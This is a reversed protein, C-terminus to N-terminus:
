RRRLAVLGALALLALSAPEPTLSMDDYHVYDGGSDGWLDVAEIAQIAYEADVDYWRFGTSVLDGGYYVDRTNADLDIDVKIEMWQDYVIPLQNSDPDDVDSCMDSTYDFLLQLSWARDTSDDADYRNLLIFYTQTGTPDSPIWQRATYTWQGTTYGEYERVVDDNAFLQVSQDGPYKSHASSVVAGAAGGDWGAWDDQDVILGGLPYSDFNDSWDALTPAACLAAVVVIVGLHRM